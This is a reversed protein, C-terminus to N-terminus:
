KKSYTLRDTPQDTFYYYNNRVKLDTLRDPLDTLPTTHSTYSRIRPICPIYSSYVSM